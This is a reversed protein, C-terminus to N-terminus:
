STRLNYFQQVIPHENSVDIMALRRKGVRRDLMSLARRVMDNAALNEEVSSNLYAELSRYFGAQTCIGQALLDDDVAGQSEGKAMRPYEIKFFELDSMSWVEAGDLTIYGRGAEDHAGRYNTSRLEVRGQFEPAFLAEVSKKLRSWIV